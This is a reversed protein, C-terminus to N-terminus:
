EPTRKLTLGVQENGDRDRIIAQYTDKDVLRARSGFSPTPQGAPGFTFLIDEGDLTAHGFYVTRSNHSDLYYVGKAIPDWGFQNRVHVATPLGKGIVGVGVVGEGDPHREYRFEVLMPGTPGQVEGRWTGGVMEAIKDLARLDTQQAAAPIERVASPDKFHAACAGLVSPWVREFYAYVADWEGGSRWGAHRLRLKTQDGDAEFELVVFTRHLRMSPFQPPANWTFSVMREPVYSLVQNGEGGQNGVTEGPLFLFEYRGGLKLEINANIGLFSRVGESTTWAPWVKAVPADIVQELVIAREQSQVAAISVVLAAACLMLSM